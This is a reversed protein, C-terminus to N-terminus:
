VRSFMRELRVILFCKYTLPKGSKKWKTLNRKLKFNRGLQIGSRAYKQKTLDLDLASKLTFNEDVVIPKNVIASIKEWHRDRMGPNRIAVVLPVKPKFEAISEKVQKAIDMCARNGAKEFSKFAKAINTSFRQVVDDLTEANIDSFTGEMWDEYQILWNSVTEWLNQYPDFSKRIERVKTYETLEREFLGERNNFTRAQEEADAIKKHLSKVHQAVMNVRGIDKYGQFQGVEQEIAVLTQEFVAQQDDMESAYFKKKERQLADTAIMQTAIKKPWGAIRWRLNFQEVDHVSQQDLADCGEFVKSMGDRLSAVEAKVSGMYEALESVEEVSQPVKTLKRRIDEFKSTVQGGVHLNFKSILAHCMSIISKHKELLRSRITGFNLAFLGLNLPDSPLDRSMKAHEKEHKSILKLVDNINLDEINEPTIKEIVKEIDANLFSVYPSRLPDKMNVLELAKILPKTSAKEVVSIIEQRMKIVIEENNSVSQLVPSFSWFLRDMLMKEVQEVESLTKIAADFAGIVSASFKESASSLKFLYRNVPDVPKINCKAKKDDPPPKWAKIAAETEAIEDENLCVPEDTVNITVNFLPPPRIMKELSNFKKKEKKSMKKGNTYDVSVDRFSKISPIGYASEVIFDRYSFLSNMTLKRLSNQMVFNIRTLLKKLKTFKYVDTKSEYINFHGKGCSQLSNRLTSTVSHTWDDKVQRSVIKNVAGQSNIFEDLDLSRKIGVNFINTKTLKECEAQVTGLATIVEPKTLFSSFTFASFKQKFEDYPVDVCGSNPIPAAPQPPPMNLSSTMRLMNSSGSSQNPGQAAAVNADFIIKNMTRSYDTSIESVLLSTDLDAGRLSGANMAGNVIRRLQESTLSGVDDTPMCDIYLNYHIMSTANSAAKQAAAVRQVYNAPDESDFCIQLRHRKHRLGDDINVDFFDEEGSGETKGLVICPVWEQQASGKPDRVTRARIAAESSGAATGRSLWEKTTYMDYDKNDFLYVPLQSNADRGTSVSISGVGLRGFASALDFSSYQQKRREVAVRRPTEGSRTEHPIFVKPDLVPPMYVSNKGEADEKTSDAASVIREWEERQRRKEAYSKVPSTRTVARSSLDWKYQEGPSDKYQTSNDQLSGKLSSLRLSSSLSQAKKM